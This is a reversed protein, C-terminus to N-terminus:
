KKSKEPALQGAERHKPEGDVLTAHIDIAAKVGSEYAGPYSGNYIARATGEGAFFLRKTGNADEVPEALVERLYWSEPEAVSYAGFSTADLSWRTVRIGEEDIDKDITKDGSMNALASKTIAISIDDCKANSKGSGHEISECRQELAKAWDGGFFGIAINTNLPKVVFAMVVRTGDVLPLDQQKAFDLEKEGLTGEYLIWSNRPEKPFIDRSLPVIVKQMNGMQLHDIADLKERPLAPNFAIRKKKLVGVSVTVLASSAHFVKGGATIKVGTGSYDVETVPSKLCVPLGKGLEEVFRGLGKDVLDDEGALFAAGDVASTKNLEAASELPGANAILLPIVDKFKAEHPVYSEAVDSTVHLYKDAMACFEEHSRANGHCLAFLGPSQTFPIMHELDRCVKAELESEEGEPANTKSERCAFDVLAHQDEVSKAATEVLHEYENVADDFLRKEKETARRDNVFYPLDLETRERKFGLSDVMPTLPNTPVGHIWAGGYDIPVKEKGIPVTYARGGIRDNAELILIKNHNLHELERAASLGALGAGVIIVDFDQDLNRLDRVNRCDLKDSPEPSSMAAAPQPCMGAMALALLLNLLSFVRLERGLGDSRLRSGPTLRAHPRTTTM